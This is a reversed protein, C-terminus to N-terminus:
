LERSICAQDSTHRQYSYLLKWGTLSLSPLLTSNNNPILATDGCSTLHGGTSPCSHASCTSWLALFLFGSPFFYVPLSERGAKRGKGPKQKRKPVECNQCVLATHPATNDELGAASSLCKPILGPLYCLSGPWAEQYISVGVAWLSWLTGGLNWFEYTIVHETEWKNWLMFHTSNFKLHTVTLCEGDMLLVHAIWSKTLKTNRKRRSSKSEKRTIIGIYRKLSWFMQILGETM